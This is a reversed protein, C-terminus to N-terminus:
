LMVMVLVLSPVVSWQCLLSVLKGSLPAPPHSTSTTFTVALLSMPSPCTPCTVPPNGIRSHPAHMCSYPKLLRIYIIILTYKFNVRILMLQNDGIFVGM